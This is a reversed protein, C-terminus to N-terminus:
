FVGVIKGKKLDIDIDRYAPRSGTGPMLKIEGAVPVLFEAGKYVLFDRIPLHFDKPRGKFTPDHSLSLHTKAMCIGYKKVRKDGKLRELKELAEKSYEVQKAGYIEEAIVDIKDLIDMGETYLPKFNNKEECARVVSSALDLAGEGGKLWHESYSVYAGSEEAMRKVLSIEEESDTSFGNICVVPKIGSKKVIEIHAILNEAGEKLLELNKSLYSPDLARGPKLPPGGGHMKLARITTVIVVADPKMESYRCKLNWFKEYGIDSGFGSETVHYESLSSALIDAIVSSQGIAINAFPGAHVFMPNGEITQLLNPNIARLMWAAMAGDVKLDEATVDEGDRNHAVVIRAMRTRLDKLDRAVALIAMVESSVTIQFGSRMKVGDMRGGEGITIHRLAQACYDIAWKTHVTEPDINLRMLGLEKLREDDYNREHQMRATLAVLSLNHANAVADIDGTLGFALETHPIVQSLGGGAASGKINFTPGGSPQRIAGTTKKGLRALGDVLGLTTTTKGEGFPTPTIATVAIYKARKKEGVRNLVKMYDVKAIHEGYLILEDELVGLYSAVSRVDRMDKEAIAAIEFDKLKRPDM